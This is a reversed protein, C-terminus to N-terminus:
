EVVGNNDLDSERAFATTDIPYHYTDFANGLEAFDAPQLPDTQPVDNDLYIAVHQGVFKATAMVSGFAGCQLNSCVKFSKVDGVPPPAAAAPPATMLGARSGPLALLERERERLTADFEAAASRPSPFLEEASVAPSPAPAASSQVTPSSSRFLYSGQVGTSSRVGNTSALVVLYQTPSNGAA